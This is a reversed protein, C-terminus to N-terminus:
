NSVMFQDLEKDDGISGHGLSSYKGVVHQSQALQADIRPLQDVPTAIRLRAVHASLLQNQQQLIASNLWTPGVGVQQPPQQPPQHHHEPPNGASQGLQELLITRLVSTNEALHRDSFAMEGTSVGNKVTRLVQVDGNSCETIMWTQTRKSNGSTEAVRRAEPDGFEVTKHKTQCWVSTNQRQSDPYPKYVM